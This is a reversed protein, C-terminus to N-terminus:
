STIRYCVGALLSSNAIDITCWVSEDFKSNELKSCQSRLTDRVYLVVGGGRCQTKPQKDKRFMTYGDTHLEADNITENAWTETIEIVSYEGNRAVYRLENMKGVISCANTYM